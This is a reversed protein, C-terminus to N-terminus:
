LISSVRLSNCSDPFGDVDADKVITWDFVLRALASFTNRDLLAYSHIRPCDGESDLAYIKLELPSDELHLERTTSVIQIESIVDVIADCCLVQGRVSSLPFSDCVCTYWPGFLCGPCVSPLDVVSIHVSHNQYLQYQVARGTWLRFCYPVASINRNM